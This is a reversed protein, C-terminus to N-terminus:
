TLSIAVVVGARTVRCHRVHLWCSLCSLEPRAGAWFPWCGGRAQASHTRGLAGLAQRAAVYRGASAGAPSGLPAVSRPCVAPRRTAARAGQSCSLTFGELKCAVSWGLLGAGLSGSRSPGTRLVALGPHGRGLWAQHQDGSGLAFSLVLGTGEPLSGAAVLGTRAAGSSVGWEICSLCVKSHSPHSPLDDAGVSSPEPGHRTFM